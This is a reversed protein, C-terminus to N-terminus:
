KIWKKLAIQMLNLEKVQSPRNMYSVHNHILIGLYNTWSGRDIM